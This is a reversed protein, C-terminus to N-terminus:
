KHNDEVTYVLDTEFALTNKERLFQQIQECFANEATRYPNYSRSIRFITQELAVTPNLQADLVNTENEM